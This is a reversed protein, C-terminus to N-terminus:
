ELLGPALQPVGSAALQGAPLADFLQHNEGERFVEQALDLQAFPMKVARCAVEGVAEAGRAARGVPKGDEDGEVVQREAALCL